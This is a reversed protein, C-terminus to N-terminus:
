RFGIGMHLSSPAPIPFLFLVDMKVEEAMTCM